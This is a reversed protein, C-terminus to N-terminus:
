SAFEVKEENSLTTLCSATLSYFKHTEWKSEEGTIKLKIILELGYM